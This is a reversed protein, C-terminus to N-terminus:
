KRGGHKFFPNAIPPVSGDWQGEGQPCCLSTALIIGRPQYQLRCARSGSQQGAAQRCRKMTAGHGNGCPITENTQLIISFYSPKIGFKQQFIDGGWVFIAM